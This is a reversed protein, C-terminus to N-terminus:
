RADLPPTRLLAGAELATGGRPLVDRNARVIAPAADARGYVREALDELTEGAEVVTFEAPERAGGRSAAPRKEGILRIPKAEASAQSVREPRDRASSGPGKRAPQYLAVAFFGVIALSLLISLIPHRDM